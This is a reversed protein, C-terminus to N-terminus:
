EGFLVFVKFKNSEGHGGIKWQFKYPHNQVAHRRHTQWAVRMIGGDTIDATAFRNWEDSGPRKRLLRGELHPHPPDVIGRIHVKDGFHFSKNRGCPPGRREKSSCGTFSEPPDAALPIAPLLLASSVLLVASVAKPVVRAM